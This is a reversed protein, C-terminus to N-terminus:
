PRTDAHYSLAVGAGFDINFTFDPFGLLANAGLTLAFTDSANFMFGLGPGLFVPGALVTDICTSMGKTGCSKQSPFSAVHRIQGGGLLASVYPHFSESGFLYTMKGFAAFASKAPSCVFDGGCQNMFEPMNPLHLDNVGTVMQ